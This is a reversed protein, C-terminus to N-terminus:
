RHWRLGDVGDEPDGVAARRLDPVPSAPDPRLFGLEVAEGGDFVHGALTPREAGGGRLPAAAPLFARGGGDKLGARLGPRGRQRRYPSTTSLSPDSV